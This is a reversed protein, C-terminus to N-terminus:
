LGPLDNVGQRLEMKVKEKHLDKWACSLSCYKREELLYESDKAWLVRLWGVPIGEETLEERNCNYCTSRLKEVLAWELELNM